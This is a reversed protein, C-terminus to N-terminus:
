LCLSLLAMGTATDIKFDAGIQEARRKMNNLGNGESANNIDFGQGDRRLRLSSFRTSCRV